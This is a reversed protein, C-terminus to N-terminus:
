LENGAKVLAGAKRWAQALQDLRTGSETALGDSFITVKYGRNLAGQATANVCYAADLGTVMVHDIQNAQLFAELEPNSFADSRSKTFIRSTAPKTLRRDMEAGPSGPKNVGGVLLSIVANKVINQIFIVPIDKAEAQAILTNSVSIIRDGDRYRNKAQPGTYDEQIDVILLAARPTPYAKIRVGKTPRMGYFVFALLALFALSIAGLTWLFKKHWKKM